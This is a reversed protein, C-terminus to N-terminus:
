NITFGAANFHGGGGFLEAIKSVDVSKDGRISFERAGTKNIQYTLGVHYKKALIHGVESSILKPCNVARFYKVLGPAKLEVQHETQIISEILRQKFNKIALGMEVIKIRPTIQVADLYNFDKPLSFLYENYAESDELDFLWLDRDQVYKILDPPQCDPYFHLWTLMAGSKTKDFLVLHNPFANFDTLWKEATLHHDIIILQHVKSALENLVETPYCFDLIYITDGSYVEPTVEGYNVAVFVTELPLKKSAIYASVFGDNCNKHYWVRIM